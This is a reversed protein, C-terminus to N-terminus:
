AFESEPETLKVGQSTFYDHVDDLYRKHQGTKMLRSVPFDLPIMMALIKLEYPLPRIVKDYAAKFEDNENRLIPVGFHLKIYGRKQEITEDQLQEAAEQLWLRQLKNQEITRDKGKVVNVTIPLDRNQLLTCLDKIDLKSKCVFPTM